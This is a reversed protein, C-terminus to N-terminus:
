LILMADGYSYFRYQSEVAHAYAQRTFEYGAIASVLMLLSSKPLHFNTILGKVTRFEYGPYIFLGSYGALEGTSAITELARTTTTGAAIVRGANKIKKWVAASCFYAEPELSHKTIDSSKVPRFTGPGVHLTIRTIEIDRKRLEALVRKTFHLGATPAAISGSVKAYITQYRKEDLLGAERTIYPPLPMKGAAEMLQRVDGDFRLIRGTQSLSLVEASIGSAFHLKTGPKFKKGPHVLADWSNESTERVLLVEGRDSQLRAPIVRTENLVILDGTRLWAPLDFFNSDTIRRSSRELVMLRSADRAPLPHQAILDEPLSYDYSQLLLPDYQHQDAAQANM